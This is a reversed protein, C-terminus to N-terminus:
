SPASVTALLEQAQVLGRRWEVNEDQLAREVRTVANSLHSQRDSGSSDRAEWDLLISRLSAATAAMRSSRDESRDMALWAATASIASGLIAISSILQADRTAAFVTALSAITLSIFTAGSVKRDHKGATRAFYDIQNNLRYQIYQRKNLADLLPDEDIAIEWTSQPPWHEPTSPGSLGPVARAQEAEIISMNRALVSEETGRKSYDGAGCRFRFTERQLAEASARLSIWRQDRQRRSVWALLASDSAALTALTVPKWAQTSTDSDPVTWLVAVATMVVGLTLILVKVWLFRPQAKNARANM